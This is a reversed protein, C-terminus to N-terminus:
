EEWICNNQPPSIYENELAEMVFYFLRSLKFLLFKNEWAEPPWFDLIMTNNPDSEELIMTTNPDCEESAERRPKYDTPWMRVSM